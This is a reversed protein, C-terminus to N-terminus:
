IATPAPASQSRCQPSRSCRRASELEDDVIAADVCHGSDRRRFQCAHSAIGDPNASM